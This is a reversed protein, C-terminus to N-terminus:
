ENKMQQLLNYIKWVEIADVLEDNTPSPASQHNLKVRKDLNVRKNTKYPAIILLNMM